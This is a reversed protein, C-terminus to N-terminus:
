EEKQILVKPKFSWYKNLIFNLPVTILLILLPAIYESLAMKDILLWLLIANLVIGTFSYAVFTKILSSFFVREEGTQKVFVFRSSWYYANLVSIIFGVINALQYHMGIWVCFFYVAYSIITNSFGVIGFKIFQIISKYKANAQLSEIVMNNVM